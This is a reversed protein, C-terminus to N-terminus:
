KSWVRLVCGLAGDGGEYVLLLEGNVYKAVVEQKTAEMMSVFPASSIYVPPITQTRPFPILEWEGEEQICRSGGGRPRLM